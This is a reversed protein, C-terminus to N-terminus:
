RLTSSAWFVADLNLAIIKRWVVPDTDGAKGLAAGGANNVLLDLGGFQVVAFQVAAEVQDQVSVDAVHPVFSAGLEESLAALKADSRGVALVRAGQGVLKRAVEAGIGSSAGTVLATKGSFEM